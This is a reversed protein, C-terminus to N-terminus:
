RKITSMSKLLMKILMELTFVAVFFINFYNLVQLYLATENKYDMCLTITNLVIFSTITLDFAKSNAVKYFVKLCAYEPEVPIKLPNCEVLFRQIKVWEKQEESLGMTGESKAKEETFKSVIVSIFLNLVFFVMIFIFAVYLIAMYPKNNLLPGGDIETSSDMAEFMFVPWSEQTSLVFFTLMSYFIDNYNDPPLIWKEGAALCLTKDSYEFASCFSVKGCLFQIGMIGFVFYFLLSILMVNVLDKLSSLLSTVIM